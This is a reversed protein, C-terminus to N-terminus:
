IDNDNNISSVVDQQAETQNLGYADCHGSPQSACASVLAAVGIIYVIRKM